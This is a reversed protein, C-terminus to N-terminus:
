FGYNITKIKNKDFNALAKKCWEEDVTNKFCLIHVTATKEKSLRLARGIKQASKKNNGYAHMIILEALNPITVGESLQEVASMKQIRGDSFLELNEKSDPNKSHYSHQCLKDAQKQTNAFLLCKNNAANLIKRALLEKSPYSKMATMRLIAYYNKKKGVSSTVKNTLYKYDEYESSVWTKNRGKKVLNKVDNLPLLHVRIEYDNLISSTAQDVQYTYVIPCYLQMLTYKIDYENDPPTGSLGLIDGKFRKLFDVHKATLSHFEDLVLFDYTIEQKEFSRYTSFSIKTALEPYNKLEKIWSDMVSKRPIVILIKTYNKAKITKLALRTKGTGMCMDVGCRNHPLIHKLAEAQILDKNIM